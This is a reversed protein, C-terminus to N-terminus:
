SYARIQALQSTEVPSRHAGDMAFGLKFLALVRM